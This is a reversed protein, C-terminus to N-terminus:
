KLALSLCIPEYKGDCLRPNSNENWRLGLGRQISDSNIGRREKQYKRHIIFYQKTAIAETVNSLVFFARRGLIVLKIHLIM